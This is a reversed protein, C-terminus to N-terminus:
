AGVVPLAPQHCPACQALRPRVPQARAHGPRLHCLAPLAAARPAALVGMASPHAPVQACALVRRPKGHWARQDAADCHSRAGWLRLRLKGVVYVWTGHDALLQLIDGGQVPVPRALSQGIGHDQGPACCAELSCTAPATRRARCRLV